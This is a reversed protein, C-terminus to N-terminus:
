KKKEEEKPLETEALVEDSKIQGNKEIEAKSEKTEKYSGLSTELEAAVLYPKEGPQYLRSGIAIQKTIEVQIKM